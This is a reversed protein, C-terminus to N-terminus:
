IHLYSDGTHSLLVNLPRQEGTGLELFLGNREEEGQPFAQGSNGTKM